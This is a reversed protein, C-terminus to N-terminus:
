PGLKAGAGAFKEDDATNWVVESALKGSIASEETVGMVTALEVAMETLNKCCRRLCCCACVVLAKESDVM